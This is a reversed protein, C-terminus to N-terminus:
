KVICVSSITKKSQLHFHNQPWASRDLPLYNAYKQAHAYLNLSKYYPSYPSFFLSLFVILYLVPLFCACSGLMIFHTLGCWRSNALGHQPMTEGSPLNGHQTFEVPPIGLQQGLFCGSAPTHTQPQTASARLAEMALPVFTIGAAQCASGHAAFKREEAIIIVHGQNDEAGLVTSQQLSTIATVDM